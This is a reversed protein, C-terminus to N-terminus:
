HPANDIIQRKYVDLHTYSVAASSIWYGLDGWTHLGALNYLGFMIGYGVATNVVGVLLFRFLTPDLLQKLKNKMGAAEASTPWSTGPGTRSRRM